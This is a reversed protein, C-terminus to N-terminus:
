PQSRGPIVHCGLDLGDGFTSKIRAIEDKASIITMGACQDIFAMHVPDDTVGNGAAKPRHRCDLHCREVRGLMKTELALQSRDGRPPPGVQKEAGVDNRKRNFQHDRAADHHRLAPSHYGLQGDKVIGVRGLPGNM